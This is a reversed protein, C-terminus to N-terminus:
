LASFGVSFAANSILLCSGVQFNDFTLTDSNNVGGHLQVIGCSYSMANPANLVSTSNSFDINLDTTKTNNLSGSYTVILSSCVWDTNLSKVFVMRDVFLM